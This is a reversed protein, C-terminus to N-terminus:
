KARTFKLRKLLAAPRIKGRPKEPRIKNSRPQRRYTTSPLRSQKSRMIKRKSDGGGSSHVDKELAQLTTLDM